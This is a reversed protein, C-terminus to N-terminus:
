LRKSERDRSCLQTVVLTHTHTVFSFRRRQTLSFGDFERDDNSNFSTLLFHFMGKNGREEGNEVQRITKQRPFSVFCLQLGLCAFGPIQVSPSAVVVVAFNRHVPRLGAGYHFIEYIMYRRESREAPSSLVFPSLSPLVFSFSQM